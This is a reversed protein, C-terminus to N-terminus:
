DFMCLMYNIWKATGMSNSFSRIVLIVIRPTIMHRPLGKQFVSDVLFANYSYCHYQSVFCISFSIMSSLVQPTTFDVNHNNIRSRSWKFELNIPMIMMTSLDFGNIKNGDLHQTCYQYHRSSKLKNYVNIVKCIEFGVNVWRWLWQWDCMWLFCLDQECCSYWHAHTGEQYLPKRQKKLKEEHVFALKELESQCPPIIYGSNWWGPFISTRPVPRTTLEYKTETNRKSFQWYCNTITKLSESNQLMFFRNTFLLLSVEVFYPLGLCIQLILTDSSVRKYLWFMLGHHRQNAYFFSTHIRM